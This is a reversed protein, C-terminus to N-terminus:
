HQIKLLQDLDCLIRSKDTEIKKNMTTMTIDIKSLVVNEYIEIWLWNSTFIKYRDSSSFVVKLAISFYRYPRQFVTDFCRWSCLPIWSIILQLQINLFYSFGAKWSSKMGKKAELLKSYLSTSKRNKTHATNCITRTILFFTVLWSTVSM